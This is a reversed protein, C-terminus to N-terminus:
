IVCSSTGTTNMENAYRFSHHIIQVSHWGYHIPRRHAPRELTLIPNVELPPQSLQSGAQDSGIRWSCMSLSIIALWCSSSSVHSARDM